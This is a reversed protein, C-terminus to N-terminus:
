LLDSLRAFQELTLAEGRVTPSLSMQALAAAASEKTIGPLGANGLGNVLTKRRQNFSARILAFMKKEDKVQVPPEEYRTLRIVASGVNPRPIFCNPPVNAVIEPKAYYQVALSLAGYDKTGPGVQMRDAVEKQVMLAMRQIPIPSALLMTLLPTTIYYPINAVVSLPKRLDKTVDALNLTMVDGQVLTFNDREALFATLLPILREDLEISLVHHAADCLYKTMSGAGPGIELVDDDKTIESSAVLAALLDEDYIFNQGLGQKYRLNSDHIREKTKSM